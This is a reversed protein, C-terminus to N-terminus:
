RRIRPVSWLEIPFSHLAGEGFRTQFVQKKAPFQSPARLISGVIVFRAANEVAANSLIGQETRSYRPKFLSNRLKADSQHATFFVWRVAMPPEQNTAHHGLMPVSKQMDAAVSPQLVLVIDGGCRSFWEHVLLRGKKRLQVLIL